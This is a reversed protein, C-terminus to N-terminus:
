LAGHLQSELERIIEALEGGANVEQEMRRFAAIVTTHDKGGFKKGIQPFSEDTHQRSLYMAIQRPISIDRTRRAGKIDSSKIDFRGAVLKIVRDVTLQRGDEINMRRLMDKAFEATLPTQTLSAQAGLRILTGELERVNSRVASAILLAVDKALPIGDAEAKKELIAMRTEVSPAQVDAILGWSFRSALRDEIGPLERPPRDSTMVIQKGAQHLANFTHFFEEQTSDKGGIFQIDDILLVDCDNRFQSRFSNMDKNRLSTILQNMFEESSLYRVRQTPDRKLIECGVAQLLHTKGLGVGGFIFLPNYVRAPNSAVAGCAAHVFQNSGGVVFEDFTYRTNMGAQAVRERWDIRPSEFIDRQEIPSTMRAQRAAMARTPADIAVDEGVEVAVSSRVVLRWERSSVAYMSERVLDLYNDEIWAKSFDDTVELEAVGDELEHFSIKEFWTSWVHDSVKEKLDQLTHQWIETM